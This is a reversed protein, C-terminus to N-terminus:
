WIWKIKSLKTNIFLYMLAKTIILASFLSMVVGIGLTTAFGRVFGAAFIYLIIVEAFTTINGDRIAPFARNFGEELAVSFSKGEKLEERMRSFILINADVAMGLSLLFGGIGPLTLTFGPWLKFVALVLIIYILLSILALFGSFHYVVIMFVAVLALGILGANLSKELSKHGLTAGVSKESIKTIPVNLAGNNLNTALEAASKIDFGGSITATGGIIKEQVVPVSIAERDVYIAVAQGVNRETIEAFLKSGEDNFNLVVIPENMQSFDVEASDLQAGGLGTIKFPEEFALAWKEITQKEEFTLVEDSYGQETLQQKFSLMAVAQIEEQTLTTHMEEELKVIADFNEAKERFELLPTRGIEAVAQSPDVVGPLRISLEYNGDYEQVQIESERVGFSNIRKEIISKLKEMEASEDYELGMDQARQRAEKLNAQYLIEAGGQLDLGLRFEQNFNLNDKLQDITQNSGKPYVFIGAFIATIVTIFLISYLTTRNM